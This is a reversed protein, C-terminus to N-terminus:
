NVIALGVKLMAQEIETKLIVIQIELQKAKIMMDKMQLQLDKAKIIGNKESIDKMLRETELDVTKIKMTPEEVDGNTTWTEPTPVDDNTKREVNGRKWRNLFKWM